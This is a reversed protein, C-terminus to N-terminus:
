SPHSLAELLMQLGEMERARRRVRMVAPLVGLTVDQEPRGSTSGGLEAGVDGGAGGGVDILGAIPASSYPPAPRCPTIPGLPFM